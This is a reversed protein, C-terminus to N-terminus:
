IDLILDDSHYKINDSGFHINLLIRPSSKPKEGKHLGYSDTFFLEKKVM